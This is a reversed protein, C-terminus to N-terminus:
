CNHGTGHGIIKNEFLNHEPIFYHPCMSQEVCYILRKFCRIFCPILNDPKWVSTPIEECIWFLITKIFYLCLLDSCGPSQSLVDKLLVKM